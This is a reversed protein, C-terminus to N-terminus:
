AYFLRYILAKIKFRWKTKPVSKSLKILDKADYYMGLALRVDGCVPVKPSYLIVTDKGISPFDYDFYSGRYETKDRRVSKESLKLLKDYRRRSRASEREIKRSDFSSEPANKIREMLEDLTAPFTGVVANIKPVEQTPINQTDNTALGRRLGLFLKKIWLTIASM